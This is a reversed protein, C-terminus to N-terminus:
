LYFLVSPSAPNPIPYPTLSKDHFLSILFPRFGWQSSQVSFLSVCLLRLTMETRGSSALCAVHFAILATLENFPLSSPDILQPVSHLVPFVSNYDRLSLSIPNSHSAHGVKLGKSVEDTLPIQLSDDNTAHEAMVSVCQEALPEDEALSRGKTKCRIWVNEAPGM